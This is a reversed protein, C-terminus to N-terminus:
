VVELILAHLYNSEPFGLLPAHDPAPGRRELVKVQRRADHAAAAIMEELDQESVHHSCTCSILLGGPRICHLARLNLEKLGRLAGAKSDRNKVFSPPDLIVMDVKKRDDFAQKIWDFVNACIRQHKQADINNQELNKQVVDLADQSADVFDVALGAQALHLGFGGEFCCLDWVTKANKKKAWKVASTHNERQDLYAGTKQSGGPATWWQLGNWEVWRRPLSNQVEVALGEYKRSPANRLEVWEEPKHGRVEEFASELIDRIVPFFHEVPATQLQVVLANGLVDVVLGPLVDCESFVWRFSELRATTEFSATKRKFTDVLNQRLVDFFYERFQETSEIVVRERNMGDGAPWLRTSPGLRRLRIESKPSYFFWHEGLPIVCPQDIKPFKDSLLSSYLWPHGARIREFGRKTLM